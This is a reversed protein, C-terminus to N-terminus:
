TAALGEKVLESVAARSGTSTTGHSGRRPSKRSSAGTGTAVGKGDCARERRRPHRANLSVEEERAWRRTSGSWREPHRKRAVEYLARRRQLQAADLQQHRADPTVYSIGSHLHERNYWRV